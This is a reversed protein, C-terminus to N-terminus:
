GNGSRRLLDIMGRVTQNHSPHQFAMASPNYRCFQTETQALCKHLTPHPLWMNGPNASTRQIYSISNIHSNTSCNCTCRIILHTKLTTENTSNEDFEIIYKRM